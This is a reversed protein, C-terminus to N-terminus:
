NSVTFIYAMRDFFNSTDAKEWQPSTQTGSGTPQIKTWVVYENPTPGGSWVDEYFPDDMGNASGVYSLAQAADYGTAHGHVIVIDDATYAATPPTDPFDAGPTGNNVYDHGYVSPVVAGKFIFAMQRRSGTGPSNSSTLTWETTGDTSEDYIKALLYDYSTGVRAEEAILTMGDADTINGFSASTVVVVLDGDEIDGPIFIRKNSESGDRQHVRVLRPVDAWDAAQPAHLTIWFQSWWGSTSWEIDLETVTKSLTNESNDIEVMSCNSATDTINTISMASAPIEDAGASTPGSHTEADSTITFGLVKSGVPLNQYVSGYVTTANPETTDGSSTGQGGATTDQHHVSHTVADRGTASNSSNLPYFGTIVDGNNGGFYANRVVCVFMGVHGTTSSSNNGSTYTINGTESGTAIKYAWSTFRDSDLLTYGAPWGPPLTDSTDGENGRFGVLILDDAEVESPVAINHTDTSGAVEEYNFAVVYPVNVPYVLGLVEAATLVRDWGGCGQFRMFGNAYVQIDQGIGADSFACAVNSTDTEEVAGDVYLTKTGDSDLTLTLSHYEDLSLATTGTLTVFDGNADIWTARAVWTTTTDFVASIAVNRGFRAIPFAAPATGGGGGTGGPVEDLMVRMTVSFDDADELLAMDGCVGAMMPTGVTSNTTKGYATHFGDTYTQISSFGPLKGYEVNTQVADEIRMPDTASPCSQPFAFICNADTYPAVTFNVSPEVGGCDAGWDCVITFEEGYAYDGPTGDCNERYKMRALQGCALGEDVFDIALEGADGDFSGTVATDSFTVTGSAPTDAIQVVYEWWCGSSGVAGPNGTNGWPILTDPGSGGPDAAPTGPGDPATTTFFLESIPGELAIQGDDPDRTIYRVQFQYTTESQLFSFTAATIPYTEETWVPTTEPLRYQVRVIDSDIATNLDNTWSITADNDGEDASLSIPQGLDDADPAQFQVWESGVRVFGLADDATWAGSDRHRM